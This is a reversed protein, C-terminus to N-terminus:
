NGLANLTMSGALGTVPLGRASQFAKVAALTMPGFYGTHGDASLYGAAQLKTQLDLVADSRMGFKLLVGQAVPQILLPHEFPGASMGDYLAYPTRNVNDGALDLYLTVEDGAKLQPPYIVQRNQGLLLIDGAQFNWPTGGFCKGPSGGIGQIGPIDPTCYEPLSGVTVLTNGSADISTIHGQVAFFKAVGTTAISAGQAFASGYLMGCLLVGAAAGCLLKM